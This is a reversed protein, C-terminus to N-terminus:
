KQANTIRLLYYCTIVLIVHHYLKIYNYMYMGGSAVRMKCKEMAEPTKREKKREVDQIVDHVHIYIYVLAENNQYKFTVENSILWSIM